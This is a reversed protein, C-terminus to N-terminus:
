FSSEKFRFEELGIRIKDGDNLLIKNIKRGNVKVGNTSNLDECCVHNAEKYFKIHRRSIGTECLTYDTGQESSGIIFGDDNLIIEELEKNEPILKGIPNEMLLVTKDDEELLTTKDDLLITGEEKEYFDVNKNKNKKKKWLKYFAYVSSGICGCSIFFGILFIYYFGYNLIEIMFYIMGSLSVGFIIACLIKKIIDKKKDHEAIVEDYFETESLQEDPKDSQREGNKIEHEKIPQIATKSVTQTINLFDKMQEMNPREKILFSHFEYYFRVKKKDNGDVMDICQEIFNRLQEFINKQEEPLYCLVPRDGKDLFLLEAELKLHDLNLLYAETEEFAELLYAFFLRPDIKNIKEKLPTYIGTEYYYYEEEDQMRFECPLLCALTHCRLINKEYSIKQEKKVVYYSSFGERIWQENLRM